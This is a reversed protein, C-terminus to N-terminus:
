FSKSFTFVVGEVGLDSARRVPKGVAVDSVFSPYDFANFWNQAQFGIHFRYGGAEYAIGLGFEIIPMANFYLNNADTNVIAGAGDTELVRVNHRAFALTGRGRATLRWRRSLQWEGEGGLMVGLGFSDSRNLVETMNADLGDYQVRFTDDLTLFRFGTLAKFSVDPEFELHRTLEIDFLRYRVFSSAVATDVVSIGPRTQTAFLTGGPPTAAAKNDNSSWYSFYFSGDWHGRKGTYGGGIRYGGGIPYTAELLTGVPAFPNGPDPNSFAYDLDRRRGHLLLFEASAHWKSKDEPAEVVPAAHEPFDRPTLDVVGPPPPAHEPPQGYALGVVSLVVIGIACRMAPGWLM